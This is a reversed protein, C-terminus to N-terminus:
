FFKKQFYVSIIGSKTFVMKMLAIGYLLFTFVELCILVPGLGNVKGELYVFVIITIISIRFIANM